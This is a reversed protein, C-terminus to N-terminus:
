QASWGKDIAIHKGIIIKAAYEQLSKIKKEVKKLLCLGNMMIFARAKALCHAIVYNISNATGTILATKGKLLHM